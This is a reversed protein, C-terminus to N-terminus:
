RVFNSKSDVTTLNTSSYTHNCDKLSVNSFLSRASEARYGNLNDINFASAQFASKGKTLRISKSKLFNEPLMQIDSNSLGYVQLWKMGKKLGTDKTSQPKFEYTAPLFIIILILVV